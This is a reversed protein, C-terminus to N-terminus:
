LAVVEVNQHAAAALDGTQAFEIIQSASLGKLGLKEVTRGKEIFNEGTIINALRIITDIAPTDIGLEEAISAIPVLSCPVDEYIYRTNLGKPATLGKYASNNQIAEYLTDGKAGYSEELWKRASITKVGLAMAVHMRESDLKELMQGISPTIGEIYYEFTQGREIHGSNLLTPAPHFIAGFNNLSTEMVSNAPTFQPYAESLLEIVEMTRTAPIAALAVEKKVSFIKASQPGTARCAYIFTQAEAVTIDKTCGNSRLTEYVELAGGTRGPNLVIVQGDELYPAILCALEYHGTAPTTIMIVDTERIDEKIDSTALNIRGIGEISGSLNIYPNKALGEIKSYTRNYLNVSFGRYALYGAMALGGNGAGIVAFKVDMPSIM